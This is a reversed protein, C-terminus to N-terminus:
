QRDSYPTPREAVVPPNRVWRGAAETEATLALADCPSHPTDDLDGKMDGDSFPLPLRILRSKGGDTALWLVGDDTTIRWVRPSPASDRRVGTLTYSNVKMQGM